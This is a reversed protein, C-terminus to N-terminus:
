NQHRVPWRKIKRRRNLENILGVVDAHSAGVIELCKRAIRAFPGPRAPNAALSPREGTAELWAVAVQKGLAPSPQAEFKYGFRQPVWRSLM